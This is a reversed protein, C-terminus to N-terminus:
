FPRNRVDDIKVQSRRWILELQGILSVPQTIIRLYAKSFAGVVASKASQTTYAISIAPSLLIDALVSTIITETRPNMTREFDRQNSCACIILMRILCKAECRFLELNSLITKANVQRDYTCERYGKCFDSQCSNECLFM